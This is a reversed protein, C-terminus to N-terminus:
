HKLTSKETPGGVSEHLQIIDFRTNQRAHQRRRRLATLGNERCQCHPLKFRTNGIDPGFQERRREGFDNAMAAGHVDKPVGIAVDGCAQRTQQIVQRFNSTKAASSGRQRCALVSSLISVPTSAM